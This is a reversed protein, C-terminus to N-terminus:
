VSSVRLAFACASQGNRSGGGPHAGGGWGGPRSHHPARESSEASSCVSRSNGASTDRERADLQTENERMLNPALRRALRAHSVRPTWNCSPILHPRPPSPPLRPLTRAHSLRWRLVETCCGLVCSRAGGRPHDCVKPMARGNLGLFTHSRANWIPVPLADLFSLPVWSYAWRQTRPRHLDNNALVPTGGEYSVVRDGPGGYPGLSIRSYPGLPPRKRILSSVRYGMYRSQLCDRERLASHDQSKTGVRPM